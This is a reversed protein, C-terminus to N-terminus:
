HCIEHINIDDFDSVTTIKSVKIVENFANKIMDSDSKDVIEDAELKSIHHIHRLLYKGNPIKVKVSRIIGDKGPFVESVIGVKWIQRPISHDLVQVLQGIKLAISPRKINKYGLMSLYKDSWSKWIGNLHQNQLKRRERLEDSTSTITKETQIPVYMTQRGILFKSPTLYDMDEIDESIYTLPRSNVMASVEHLVTNIEDVNLLSGKLIKKLPAKISSMLSEYFGGWWPALPVIFKWDIKQEQIFKRFVENEFINFCKILEKHAKKFTKANDTYITNCLGRISVFRRFSKIFSECSLDYVLELHVARTVACTFLCIYMKNCEENQYVYLPGTFDIGVVTFPPQPTIRDSPLQGYMVDIKKPRAMKCVLCDNLVEKIFRRAKLIWFKNRITILTHSIGGHLQKIHYDLILLRVVHHNNPLVIPHKIENTLGSNQIRGELKLYGNKHDFYPNLNYLSSSNKVQQNNKLLKVEEHFSEYQVQKIWYESAENLEDSSLIGERKSEKHKANYFLRKIRATVGILKRWSSNNEPNICSTIIKESNITLMTQQRYENKFEEKDYVEIEFKPWKEEDKLWTPGFWWEQCEVLMKLSRGRSPHDAPNQEGSCKKWQCPSTIDQIEQVRNGVFPKLERSKSRIWSLAISSDTWYYIEDIKFPQLANVIYKGLRAALLAALLELRPLTVRKIPSVRTKSMVLMSNTNRDEDESVIYAVAAYAEESADGFVHLTRAIIKKNSKYYCRDIHIDKARVIDILWANWSEKMETSIEEDWEYGAEWLKTMFIKIKVIYPSILGLPDYLKSALSFVNRKTVRSSTSEEVINDVKYTFEDKETLWHIGLVKHKQCVQNNETLEDFNDFEVINGDEEYNKNCKSVNNTENENMLNCVERNNSKWKVLHMSASQMSSKCDQYLNKAKNEDDTGTLLDDMYMDNKLVDAVLSNQPPNVKLHERVVSIALFPSSRIGFPLVTHRFHVINKAGKPRWLFRLSNRDEKKILINLYMKRIDANLTIQHIRFRILIDILLPQLKPGKFLNDNISEGDNESCSGDFVLRVKTSERDEKVVAHHPQYSVGETLNIEHNPVKEAYGSNIYDEMAERYKKEFEPNNKFRQELKLYRKLALQENRNMGKEHIWPLGVSWQKKDKDYESTKNFSQLALNEDRNYCTKEQPLIGIAELEFLSKIEKNLQNDHIKSSCFMTSVQKNQSEINGQIIWGLISEVLVPKNLQRRVRGTIFSWYFDLGILVDIDDSNAISYDEAFQLGRAYRHKFFQEPVSERKLNCTIIETEVLEVNAFLKSNVMNEIKGHRIIHAGSEGKRDGFGSISLNEKHYKMNLLSSKRKVIYSKDSATDFLIRICVHNGDDDKLLAVATQFLARQQTFNGKYEEKHGSITTEVRVETNNEPSDDEKKNFNRYEHLLTHHYQSKCVECKISSHPCNKVMHGKKLCSFCAYEDYIYSKREAINSNLFMRCKDTDHNSNEKCVVCYKKSNVHLASATSYRLEPSRKRINTNSKTNAEEAFVEQVRVAAEYGEVENQVLKLLDGIDPPKRKRSWMVSLALPLKSLIIPVIFISHDNIPVNLAELSRLRTQISNLLERLGRVDKQDSCCKLKLLNSIHSSIVLDERGFNEKLLKLASLYNANTTSYGKILSSADGELHAKLYTFKEVPELDDNTHVSANFSDIFEQYEEYEGSFKKLTLVPLNIRSKNESVTSNQSKNAINENLVFEAKTYLDVYTEYIKEVEDIEKLMEDDDDIGEQMNESHEKITIFKDHLSKKYKMIESNDLIENELAEKLAKACRTFHGKYANQQKKM